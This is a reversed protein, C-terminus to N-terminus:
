NAVKKKQEELKKQDEMEKQKMARFELYTFRKKEVKPKKEEEDKKKDRHQDNVDFDKKQYFQQRSNHSYNNQIRPRAQLYKCAINLLM